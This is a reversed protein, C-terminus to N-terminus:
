QHQPTNSQDNIAGDRNANKPNTLTFSHRCRGSCFVEIKQATFRQHCNRCNCVKM